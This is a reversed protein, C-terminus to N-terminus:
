STRGVDYNFNGGGIVNVGGSDLAFAMAISGNYEITTSTNHISFTTSASLSNWTGATWSQTGGGSPTGLQVWIQSGVGAYPSNIWSTSCSGSGSHTATGDNVLTISVSYTGITPSVNGLNAAFSAQLGPGSALLVNMFGSM